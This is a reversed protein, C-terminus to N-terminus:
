QIRRGDGCRPRGSIGVDLLPNPQFELSPLAQWQAFQTGGGEANVQAAGVQEDSDAAAALDFFQKGHLGGM